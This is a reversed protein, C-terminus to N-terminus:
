TMMDDVTDKVRVEALSVGIRLEITGVYTPVVKMMCSSSRDMGLIATSTNATRLSKSAMKLGIAQSDPRIFRGM